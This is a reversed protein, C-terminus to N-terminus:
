KMLRNIETGSSSSPVTRMAQDSKEGFIKKLLGFVESYSRDADHVILTNVNPIDLGSEIIKTCVLVDFRKELFEVMVDELERSPMQGHAFRVRVGPCIRRLREAVQAIDRVRDHVAYVQGGRHTERLVAESVLEESFEMIETIIPLRNRPPTAIISLDRAGMLSFHLTRPIPTATLAITDVGAKRQRLKEKAAVGFRHEEDIILLGLDKFM